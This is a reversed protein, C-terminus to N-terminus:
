VDRRRVGLAIGAAFLVGIPLLLLTKSLGAGLVALLAGLALYIWGSLVLDIRDQDTRPWAFLRVFTLSQPSPHALACLLVAAGVAAILLGFVVDFEM